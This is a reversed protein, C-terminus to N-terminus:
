KQEPLEPLIRRLLESPRTVINKTADIGMAKECAVKLDIYEAWWRDGMSAYESSPRTPESRAPDIASVYGLVAVSLRMYAALCYPASDLSWLRMSMADNHFAVLDSVSRRRIAELASQEESLMIRYLSQRNDARAHEAFNGISLLILLCLGLRNM